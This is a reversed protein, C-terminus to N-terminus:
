RTARFRSVGTIEYAFDAAEDKEFARKTTGDMVEFLADQVIDTTVKEELLTQLNGHIRARVPDGSVFHLDSSGHKLAEELYYDIKAM